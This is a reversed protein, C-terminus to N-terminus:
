GVHKLQWGSWGWCAKYDQWNGRPHDHRRSFWIPLSYYTIYENWMHASTPKITHISIDM